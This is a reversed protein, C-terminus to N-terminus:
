QQAWCRQCFCVLDGLAAGAEGTHRLFCNPHMKAECRRGSCYGHEVEEPTMEPHDCAWDCRTSAGQPLIPKAAPMVEDATNDEEEADDYRLRALPTPAGPTPAGLLTLALLAPGKRAEVCERVVCLRPKVWPRGAERCSGCTKMGQMPCPNQGCACEQACLEFDAILKAAAAVVASQKGAADEKRAAIGDAKEKVHKRKKKCTKRVNRLSASGGEYMAMDAQSRDRKQAPDLEKPKMLFPVTEPDVYGKAVIAELSRAHSAVAEFKATMAALSGRRMGNPTLVVEDVAKQTV